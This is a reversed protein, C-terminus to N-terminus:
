VPEQLQLPGAYSEISHQPITFFHCIDIAQIPQPPKVALALRHGGEVPSLRFHWAAPSEQLQDECEIGITANESFRFSFKDLGLSIGEGRAKIYSEKLTWYDFFRNKQAEGSFNQLDRYEQRSFFRKALRLVAVDRGCREIDIGIVPFSAIACAVWETTHSLNFFLRTSPKAIYPKGHDGADFEWLSPSYAEYQSLVTRLLARTIADVDRLVPSKFRLNRTLETHSMLSYYGTLASTPILSKRTLWIHVTNAALKM